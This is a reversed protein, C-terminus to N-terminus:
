SKLTKQKRSRDIEDVLYKYPTIHDEEARKRFHAIAAVTGLDEKSKKEKPKKLYYIGHERFILARLEFSALNEYIMTRGRGTKDQIRKVLDKARLGQPNGKLITRTATWINM